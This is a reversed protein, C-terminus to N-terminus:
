PNKKLTRKLEALRSEVQAKAQEISSKLRNEQPAQPDTATASSVATALEKVKSWTDKANNKAHKYLANLTYPSTDDREHWGQPKGCASCAMFYTENNKVPLFYVTASETKRFEVFPTTKGCFGCFLQLVTGGRLWETKTVREEMSQLCLQNTPRVGSLHQSAM